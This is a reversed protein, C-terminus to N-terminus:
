AVEGRERAAELAALVATEAAERQVRIAEHLDARAAAAYGENREPPLVSRHALPTRSDPLLDRPVADPDAMLRSLGTLIQPWTMPPDEQMAQSIVGNVYHERWDPSGRRVACALAVLEGTARHIVDAPSPVPTM